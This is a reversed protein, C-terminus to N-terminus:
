LHYGLEYDQFMHEHTQLVSTSDWSNSTSSKTDFDDSWWIVSDKSSNIERLCDFRVAQDEQPVFVMTKNNLFDDLESQFAQVEVGANSQEIGDAKPDSTSDLILNNGTIFAMSNDSSPTFHLSNELENAKTNSFKAFGEQIIAGTPPECFGVKQGEGPQDPSSFDHQWLPSPNENLSQLSRIMKEQLPHLKPWLAPNNYFSLPKHLTQLQMHLQLRELASSSLAQSYSNDEIGNADKAGM